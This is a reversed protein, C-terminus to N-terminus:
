EAQLLVVQQIHGELVQVYVQASADLEAELGDVDLHDLTSAAAEAVLEVIQEHPQQVLEAVVHAKEGRGHVRRLAVRPCGPVSMCQEHHADAVRAEEDVDAERLVIAHREREREVLRLVVDGAGVANHELLVGGVVVVADVHDVLADAFPLLLGMQAAAAAVAHVTHRDTLDAATQVHDVVDVQQRGVAQHCRRRRGDLPARHVLKLRSRAVDVLEGVHEFLRLRAAVAVEGGVGYTDYM